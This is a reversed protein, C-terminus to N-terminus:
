RIQSMTLFASKVNVDLPTSGTVQPFIHFTVKDGKSFKQQLFLVITQSNKVPYWYGLTQYQVDNVYCFFSIDSNSPIASASLYLRILYLGSNKLTIESKTQNYELQDDSRSAGFKIKTVVGETAKFSSNDFDYTDVFTSKAVDEATLLREWSSWKGNAVTKRWTRNLNDFGLVQGYTGAANCAWFGRLAVGPGNIASTDSAFHTFGKYRPLVEHYDSSNNIYVRVQGNDDTIRWIQSTNWKDKEEGTVHNKKDGVHSDFDVKSAQKINDVNGLGVQSKTVAHPNNKANSHAAIDNSLVKLGATVETTAAAKSQLENLAEYTGNMYWNFWDAPPHDMPKFGESIKSQPPKQGANDWQPIEKTFAM